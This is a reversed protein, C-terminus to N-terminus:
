LSVLLGISEMQYHHLMLMTRLRPCYAAPGADCQPTQRARGVSNRSHVCLRYFDDSSAMM